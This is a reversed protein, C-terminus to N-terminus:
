RCLIDLQDRFQHGVTTAIKYKRVEALLEAFTPTSFRQYEDAFLMFPVRLEEPTDVRSFAANALQGVLISGVLSTILEHQRSLKVLLIKREDMIHQMSITSKAQGVINRSLPQLFERVRRMTSAAEERQEKLPLQEYQKWFLTVYPDSITALLKQRCNQDTFLLPIDAMDAFYLHLPDPESSLERAADEEYVGGLAGEVTVGREELSGLIRDLRGPDNFAAPALEEM